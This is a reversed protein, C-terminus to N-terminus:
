PHQIGDVLIRRVLSQRTMEIMFPGPYEGEEVTGTQIGGVIRGLSGDPAHDDCALYPASVPGPLACAGLLDQHAHQAGAPLLPLVSKGTHHPQQARWLSRSQVNHWARTIGRQIRRNWAQSRSKNRVCM